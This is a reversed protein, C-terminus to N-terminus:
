SCAAMLSILTWFVQVLEPMQQAKESNVNYGTEQNSQTVRSNYSGSEEELTGQTPKPQNTNQKPKQENQHTNKKGEEWEWWGWGKNKTEAQSASVSEKAKLIATHYPLLHM